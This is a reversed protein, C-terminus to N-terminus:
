EPATPKVYANPVHITMFRDPDPIPRFGFQAYLGHADKTILLFRRIGQLPPHDIIARMLAKGVGHGQHEEAVFVDAVYAFTAYDTIVRAFGVQENGGALYSGFCLSNEISRQILEFPIEKAWYSAALFRHIFPLDLRASDTSVEYLINVPQNSSDFSLM